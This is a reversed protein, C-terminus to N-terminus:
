RITGIKDVEILKYIPQVRDFSGSFGIGSNGQERDKKELDILREKLESVTEVDFVYKVKEFYRKSILRTLLTNNRYNFRSDYVYTIPFWKLIGELSTIYYCLIDGEIFEEKSISSLLRKIILDAMPSIFNKSFAYRYYNDISEIHNYLESFREAGQSQKYKREFLYGSYFIDGLFKFQENKLAVAITYLFIEHIFFKFNDFEYSSWSGRDVLPDKLRVIKGFFHIFLDIDFDLESKFVKDVFNIFNDRLPTYSIINDHIAKGISIYDRKDKFDITYNQLDIYFQDLFERILTNIKNPRKDIQHEFGNLLISTKSTSLSDEFLYAPAKGLKSKQYAPRQYLNRLLKKYNDEYESETSLDIYIRGKFFTPMFANGENDKESIIPIFKEQSVHNYIEPSIIQAETGVGGKRAEAKENYSKDLIVLVKDIDTSKVMPKMFIYKDQGEKLNWKDFIVDVGDFVLRESLNMVWDEHKPNSWSYSIFVKPNKEM